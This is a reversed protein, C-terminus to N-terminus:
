VQKRLNEFINAPPASPKAGLSKAQVGTKIKRGKMKKKSQGTSTVSQWAQASKRNEDGMDTMADTEEPISSTNRCMEHWTSRALAVVDRAKDAIEPYKPRKSRLFFIADLRPTMEPIKQLSELSTSVEQPQFAGTTQALMRLSYLYGDVQAVLHLTQWDLRGSSVRGLGSAITGLSPPTRDEQLHWLYVEILAFMIWFAPWSSLKLNDRLAAVRTQCTKAADDIDKALMVSLKYPLVRQGSRGFEQVCGAVHDCGRVLLSYALHRISKSPLWASARDPDELLPPLYICWPAERNNVVQLILESVRNDSNECGAPMRTEREYEGEMDLFEKAFEAFGDKAQDDMELRAKKAAEALSLYGDKKVWFALELMGPVDLTKVVEDPSFTKATLKWGACKECVQMSLPHFVAIAEGLDHVMFDSDGSLV